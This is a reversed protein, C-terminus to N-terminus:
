NFDSINLLISNCDPSPQRKIYILQIYNFQENFYPLDTQGGAAYGRSVIQPEKELEHLTWQFMHDITGAYDLQSIDYEVDAEDAYYASHVEGDQVTIRIRPLEGSDASDCGIGHTHGLTFIYNDLEYYSWAAYNEEVAARTEELNSAVSSDSSCAALYMIPLLAVYRNM